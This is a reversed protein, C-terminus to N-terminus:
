AKAHSNIFVTKIRPDGRPIFEHPFSPGEPVFPWLLNWLFSRSAYCLYGEPTEQVVVATRCGGGENLVLQQVPKLGAAEDFARSVERCWSALRRIKDATVNVAKVM